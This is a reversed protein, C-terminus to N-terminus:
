QKDSGHILSGKAADRDPRVPGPCRWGTRMLSSLYRPSLTGGLPPAQLTGDGLTPGGM